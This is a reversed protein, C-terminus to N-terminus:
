IAARAPEGALLSRRTQLDLIEDAEVLQNRGIFRGAVLLGAEHAEEGADSYVADKVVWPTLDLEFADVATKMVCSETAIGAIVIHKWGNANVLAAGEDTFMTYGPKDLVATASAVYPALEDVLDIQPSSQVQTWGILREYASGPSNVFRTMVYPLGAASWREVLDVVRPVIHASAASVFGNQVDIVALVSDGQHM